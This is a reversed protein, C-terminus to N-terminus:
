TWKQELSFIEEKIDTSSKLLIKDYQLRLKEMCRINTHWFQDNLAWDFVSRMEKRTRDDEQIMLRVDNSWESLLSKDLAKTNQVKVIKDFCYKSFYDNFNQVTCKEPLKYDKLLVTAEQFEPLETVGALDNLSLGNSLLEKLVATHLRNRPNFKTGFKESFHNCLFWKGEELVKVRKKKMNFLKIARNHNVKCFMKAFWAIRPRYIGSNPITDRMQIWLLQYETPLSLFWDDEWINDKKAM